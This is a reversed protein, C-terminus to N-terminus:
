HIVDEKNKGPLSGFIEEAARIIDEEEASDVNVIDFAKKRTQSLRCVLVLNDVELVEGAVEEIIKRYPEREIREKHFEYFVEITLIKGDFEQPNTARLLAEISHNKPKVKKMVEKWKKELDLSPSSKAVKKIEQTKTESSALEEEVPIEQIKDEEGKSCWKVVVLELPLQPIPAKPLDAYAQTFLTILEEIEEKTKIGEIPSAKGVGVHALLQTRLASVISEVYQKFNAGQTALREIEALASKVDKRGLAFLLKEPDILGGSYILKKTEELTIQKGTTALQELVKIGDRFSGDVSKAIEDLAEKDIKLKEGAVVRGLSRKIEEATAKRFILTTCRSRITEPLKEPATTALIFLAHSPPEELTKLLANAAETTLMHAEDILYVKKRSQSPSLKVLERLERIDDIGRHSAADIEMVDINSGSNISKCTACENCPENLKGKDPDNKECNVIKAIIRASSTKGAGRPGAFLFAHPLKGSKVMKQLQERIETLDLEDIKKPRYKLYLTM